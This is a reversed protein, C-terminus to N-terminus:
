DYELLLCLYVMCFHKKKIYIAWSNLMYIMVGFNIYMVMHPSIIQFSLVLLFSCWFFIFRAWDVLHIAFTWHHIFFMCSFLFFPWSYQEVQSRFLSVCDYEKYNKIGSLICLFSWVYLRTDIHKPKSKNEEWTNGVNLISM